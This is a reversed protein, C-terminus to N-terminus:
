KKRRKLKACTKVIWQGADVGFCFSGIAALALKEALWELAECFRTPGLGVLLGVFPFALVLSAAFLVGATVM